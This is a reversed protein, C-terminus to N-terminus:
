TLAIIINMELQKNRLVSTLPKFPPASMVLQINAGHPTNPLLTFLLKNSKSIKRVKIVEVFLRDDILRRTHSAYNILHM